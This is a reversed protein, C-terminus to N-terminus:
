EPQGTSGIDVVLNLHQDVTAICDPGMVFSSEREEIVAPGRIETGPALAYRDYVTADVDGVRLLHLERRGRAPPGESLHYALSIHTEPLRATLRWNIAEVPIGAITRGFKTRYTQSFREAIAPAAASDLLGTPLPVEIEFGQGAYRLDASRTVVMGEDAIGADKLVACARATMDAYLRQVRTWDVQELVAAYGRVEDVTPPAVLFGFASFVGAGMPILIRSVRLRRALAYAHVPGAGGFAILSYSRPDKGSEALHARAAAAMNETAIDQIGAAVKRVPLGMPQALREDLARHVDGFALKMEGGLFNEPDLCGLLVDADTVTPESGGLGYAVPGPAAGASRPGVKMLGVSDLNAISGGGAGIEIMDIVTLKLPLGSGNKFKAVRAAEFEHRVRPLGDEIVCIKATTGGMDFSIVAPEGTLRALYAAAMAGAAPGSELLRVPFAKAEDLTTLGGSSLMVYLSAEFGRARIRRELDDLYPSVVPQTYANVCATNTREYEGREAAVEVSLTVPLRPYLRAALERVRVEHAPNIYSHLLSVAVAEIRHIEVLDTIAQEVAPEDLATHEAGAATMRGGVGYRRSRPVLVPAPRARLDDVDYRIERGMELIDRFGATTILGITAGTRELVTNTVLTTGHVIAKVQGVATNTEELLRDIGEIVGIAPSDPTTLRKGTRTVRRAEDHLVLDTFTGGIDVGIRATKEL